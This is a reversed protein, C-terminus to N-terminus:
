KRLMGPVLFALFIVPILANHLFWNLTMVEVGNVMEPTRLPGNQPILLAAVIVAFILLAIGANRLGKNEIETVSEQDPMYTGTYKGLNKEVIKETVVTGLFTLLFTSVIMFYWNATPAISVDINAGELAINTIGSLLPDTTGLVLNASFGASVGAFAAALGAIPHRGANAFIIAGLPVVVVYGADSAVNSIIGAFVVVATMLSPNVGTMLKKLFTNILGTREAVGVGLMAILVTGLAPFKTFNSTMNGLIYRLGEWNFMSVIEATAEEGLKADYYTVQSGAFVASLIVILISFCLFIIAPHPLANGVREVGKLFGSVENQDKTKKM